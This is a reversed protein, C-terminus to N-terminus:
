PLPKPWQAFRQHLSSTSIVTGYSSTMSGSATAAMNRSRGSMATTETTWWSVGEPVILGTSSIPAIQARCPACRMTSATEEQPPIGAEGSAQWAAM